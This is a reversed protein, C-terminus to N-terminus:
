ARRQSAAEATTGSVGKARLAQPPPDPSVAVDVDVLVEVPVEVLVDEPLVVDVVVPVLPLVADLAGALQV